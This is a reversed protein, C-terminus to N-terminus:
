PIAQIRSAYTRWRNATKYAQVSESPVYIPCDNTYNFVGSGLAPPTTAEVIISSLSSCSTFANDGIFTVGSPITISTLIPCDMFAGTGISTVSSPITVSSLSTCYSFANSDISTVCDGIQFSVVDSSVEGNTIASSSDCEASATTGGTLTAVWKTDVTPEECPPIGHIRSTYTSWGSASRYASVASCPVYIPCDNTNDFAGSGLAPPTTAEVTISSLSTCYSFAYNGITTVGSPITISTLSSCYMFATEGIYTVGSPITVSTLSRCEYFAYGGISTVCDGIQFSVVDSSVEGNTIASSSDCEASATTGGTLTAVWKTDVTPEECPPIGHIRSAYDSWGSASKYASVSSCPVYIPCNNPGFTADTAITPPTTANITVSSLIPCDMFAASGISTVGDGITVSTLGYCYMFADRGISTVSNPITVSSLGHSHKFTGEEISTVSDPITVSSLSFCESFAYSGISTVGSPINVNSLSICGYFANSGISTVSDPITVSSLSICNAFVGYNISTVGSSITVSTLSHCNWFASLGISTVSDPIIVSPLSTCNQFANKGISTVSSPITVSSLSSCEYFAYGEISTVCDGIEISAVDSSVEYQRISTSSDCAASSTTGGTFTAVWKPPPVYGCDRSDAEILSGTTTGTTTWTVGGDNSVQHEELVHLDYGVCTTATTLTRYQPEIPTPEDEVCTTNTTKAWRYIRTGPDPPCEECYYDVNPNLNVWRYITEGTPVYGCAPDNDMKTVATLSGEGDVSYVNPYVPIWDQDGRKEYKQFLWWSTYNTYQSM